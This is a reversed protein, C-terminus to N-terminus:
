RAAELAEIEDEMAARMWEIGLYKQAMFSAFAKVAELHTPAITAYVAGDQWGHEYGFIIRARIYEADPRRAFLGRHQEEFLDRGITCPHKAPADSM